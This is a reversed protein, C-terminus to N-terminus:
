AENFLHRRHGFYVYNIVFFVVYGVVTGITSSSVMESELLSKDLVVNVALLYLVLAVVEILPLILYADVSGAKFKKLGFRLCLFLIGLLISVIGYTMDITKLTPYFGYVLSAQDGYQLGLIQSVGSIIGAFGGLICQVYLIFKYWKMGLGESAAQALKQEYLSNPVSNAQPVSTPQPASQQVPQPAPQQVPQPVSAPVAGSVAAINFGCKSCFKADENVRNGCKPCFM